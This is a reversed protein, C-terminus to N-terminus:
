GWCHQSPYWHSWGGTAALWASVDINIWLDWISAGPHGAAAARGAWFQPMQQFPGSAGSPNYAGPDGKSECWAVRAFRVPDIGHRHAADDIMAWVTGPEISVPAPRAAPRQTNRIAYRAAAEQEADLRAQEAEAALRAQEREWAYWREDAAVQEALLAADVAETLELGTVPEPRAEPAVISPVFVRAPPLAEAAAPHRTGLTSGLIALVVVARRLLRNTTM